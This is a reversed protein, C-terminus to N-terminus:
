QQKIHHRHPKQHKQHTKQLFNVQKTTENKTGKSSRPHEPNSQSKIQLKERHEPPDGITGYCRCGKVTGTSPHQSPFEGPTNVIPQGMKLTEFEGDEAQGAHQQTRDFERYYNIRLISFVM